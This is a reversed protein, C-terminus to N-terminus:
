LTSYDLITENTTWNTNVCKTWQLRWCTETLSQLLKLVSQQSHMWKSLCDEKDETKCIDNKSTCYKTLDKSTAPQSQHILSCMTHSKFKNIVNCHIKRLRKFIKTGKQYFKFSQLFLASFIHRWLLCRLQNTCLVYVYFISTINVTIQPKCFLASILAWILAWDVHIQINKFVSIEGEMKVKQGGTVPTKPWWFCLNRWYM